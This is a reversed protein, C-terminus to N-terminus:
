HDIQNQGKMHRITAAVLFITSFLGRIYLLIYFLMLAPVYGLLVM